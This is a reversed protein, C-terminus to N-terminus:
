RETQLEVEASAEGTGETHVHRVKKQIRQIEEKTNNQIYKGCQSRKQM